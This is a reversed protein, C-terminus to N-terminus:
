SPRRSSSTMTPKPRSSPQRATQGIMVFTSLFIAGPIRRPSPPWPSRELFLMWVAFVAIHPYVFAMSGVFKTIANAIRLQVDATRRTRLKTV